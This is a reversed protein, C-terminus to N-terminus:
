RWVYLGAADPVVWGSTVAPAPYNKYYARPLIIVNVDHDISGHMAHIM